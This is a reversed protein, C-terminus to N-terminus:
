PTHATEKMINMYAMSRRPREKMAAKASPQRSELTYPNREPAHGKPTTSNMQVPM